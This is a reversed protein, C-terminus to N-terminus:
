EDFLNKMEMLKVRRTKYKQYFGSCYGSGGNSTCGYNIKDFDTLKLNGKIFDYKDYKDNIYLEEHKWHEPEENKEVDNGSCYGSHDFGEVDYTILIATKNNNKKMKRKQLEQKVLPHSHTLDETKIKPLFQKIIETHDINCAYNFIELDKM